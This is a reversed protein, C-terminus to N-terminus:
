PCVTRVLVLPHDIHVVQWLPSDCNHEQWRVGYKSAATDDPFPGTLLLEHRQLVEDWMTLVYIM